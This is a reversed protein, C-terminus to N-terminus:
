EKVCRLSAFGEMQLQTANSVAAPNNFIVSHTRAWGGPMGTNDNTWFVARQGFGPNNTTSKDGKYGALPLILVRGGSATLKVYRPTGGIGTPTSITGDATHLTAVITEQRGNTFQGPITTGHPLLANLEDPTPVRYGEPCPMHTDHQWPVDQQQNGLNNSPNYGQWPEYMYLRGFQFLGGICALWDTRYMEEVTCGDLPYIQDELDRSRANFAMWELGAMQVTEIPHSSPAVCLRVFDYSAAHVAYQLHLVVEYGLRGRGQPAVTLDYASVIGAETHSLRVPHITVDDTLGETSAIDVRTAAVFALTMRAGEAPIEVSNKAYDVTVGAPIDSHAPDLLIRHETDPTGVVRDGEEWPAVEFQLEIEAGANRITLTYIRNAAIEPLTVQMQVPIDRYSGEVIAEVPSASGYVRFLDAATGSLPPDCLKTYTLRQESAAAEEAFPRAAAPVNKLTVATVSLAADASTDLDIRATGHRLTVTADAPAAGTAHYATLFDPASDPHPQDGGCTLQLFDNRSMGDDAALTAGALWYIQTNPLVSLEVRGEADPTLPQQRYLTGSEDFLYATLRGIATTGTSQDARTTIRIVSEDPTVPGTPPDPKNPMEPGLIEGGKGCSALLLLLASCFATYRAAFTRHFIPM